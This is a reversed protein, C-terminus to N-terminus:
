GISHLASTHRVIPGKYYAPDAFKQEFIQNWRQNEVCFRCVGCKCMRPRSTSAERISLNLGRLGRHTRPGRGAVLRAVSAADCLEIDQENFTSGSKVADM